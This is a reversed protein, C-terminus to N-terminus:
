VHTVGISARPLNRDPEPRAPLSPTAGEPAAAPESRRQRARRELDKRHDPAAVGLLADIREEEDLLSCDVAGHETVVWGAYARPTTVVGGSGLSPVIRSVTGAAATSRMAILSRGGPSHSAGVIFDLQGGVGGIARGDRREANIAGDLAVEWASNVAHFRPRGAVRGLDHTVEVPELRFGPEEAVFRHLEASGIVATAIAPAEAGAVAGSRLLRMQGDTLLGSHISLRRHDVLADAVAEMLGGVGLQVTAGDPIIEAVHAAITRDVENPQETRVTPLPRDVPLLLDIDEVPLWGGGAARPLRPNVEAIVVRAARAARLALDVSLGLHCRGEADPPAVEICAVDIPLRGEALWGDVSSLAIPLTDARGDAVVPAMVPATYLLQLRGGGRPWRQLPTPTPLMVSTIVNLRRGELGAEVLLAALETPASGFGALFVQAGDRLGALERAIRERAPGRQDIAMM